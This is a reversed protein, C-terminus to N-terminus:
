TLHSEIIFPLLRRYTGFEWLCCLSWLLLPPPTLLLLDIQREKKNTRIFCHTSGVVAIRIFFFSEIFVLALCDINLLLYVWWRIIAAVVVLKISRKTNSAVLIFYIHYCYYYFQPLLGLLLMLFPPPFFPFVPSDFLFVIALKVDRSARETYPQQLQGSILIVITQFSPWYIIFDTMVLVQCNNIIFM